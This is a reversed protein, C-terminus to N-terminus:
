VGLLGKLFQVREEKTRGSFSERELFKLTSVLISNFYNATQFSQATLRGGPYRTLLSGLLEIVDKGLRSWESSGPMTALRDANARLNSLSNRNRFPPDGRSHVAYVICGLSYMDNAPARKEDLAYEPALYDFNVSMAPPLSPDYDPHRFPTEGGDPRKLPTLFGFGCLKWDGKANICVAQSADLNGHVM